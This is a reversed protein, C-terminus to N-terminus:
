IFGLKGSGLEKQKKLHELLYNKKQIVTKGCFMGEVLQREDATWSDWVSGCKSSCYLSCIRQKPLFSLEPTDLHKLIDDDQNKSEDIRISTDKGMADKNAGSLGFDCDREGEVSEADSIKYLSRVYEESENDFVTTENSVASKGSILELYKHSEDDFRGDAEVTLEKEPEVMENNLKLLYQLSESDFEM